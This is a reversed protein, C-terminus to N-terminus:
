GGCLSAMRKSYIGSVSERHATSKGRRFNSTEMERFPSPSRKQPPPPPPPPPPAEDRIVEFDVSFKGDDSTDLYSEPLSSLESFQASSEESMQQRTKKKIWEIRRTEAEELSDDDDKKKEDESGSFDHESNFKEGESDRAQPEFM